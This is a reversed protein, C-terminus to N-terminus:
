ADLGDLWGKLQKLKEPPLKRLKEMSDLSSSDKKLTNLPHKDDIPTTGPQYELLDNPTCHLAICLSNVHKLNLNTAQNKSLRSAVNHSMGLRKMFSYPVAIGRLKMIHALNLIIM